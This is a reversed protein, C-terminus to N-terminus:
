FTTIVAAGSGDADWIGDVIGSYSYEELTGGSAIPVTFSSSTATAGYKVRLINADTNTIKFRGTTNNAATLLTQNTALSNVATVTGSTGIPPIIGGSGDVTVVRGNADTLIETATGSTNTPPSSYYIGIAQAPNVRPGTTM